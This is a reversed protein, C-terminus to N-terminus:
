CNRGCVRPKGPKCLVFSRPWSCPLVQFPLMSPLMFPFLFLLFWSQCSIRTSTCRQAEKPAAVQVAGRGRSEQYWYIWLSVVCSLNHLIYIVASRSFIRPQFLCRMLSNMTLRFLLFFGHITSFTAAAPPPRFCFAFTAVVSPAFCRFCFQPQVGSDHCPAFYCLASFACRPLLLISFCFSSPICYAIPPNTSTSCCCDTQYCMYKSVGRRQMFFVRHRVMLLAALLVTLSCNRQLLASARAMKKGPLSDSSSIATSTCSMVDSKAKRQREQVAIGQRGKRGRQACLDKKCIQRAKKTQFKPPLLFSDFM